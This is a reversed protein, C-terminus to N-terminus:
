CAKLVTKNHQQQWTHIQDRLATTAFDECRYSLSFKDELDQGNIKNASSRNGWAKELAISLVNIIDHGNSLEKLDFNDQLDAEFAAKKDPNNTFFRPKTSKDEVAKLLKVKDLVLDKSIFDNYDIFKYQEGNDSKFKLGLKQKENLLRLISLPRILSMLFELLDPNTQKVKDIKASDAYQLLINEWVTPCSMQMIETDHFDTMFVNDLGIEEGTIRRFDADIIGIKLNLTANKQPHQLITLLNAFGKTPYFKCVTTDLLKSFFPKNDESEILVIVTSADYGGFITFARDIDRSNSNARNEFANNNQQPNRNKSM